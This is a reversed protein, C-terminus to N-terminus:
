KEKGGSKTSIFSEFKDNECVIYLEKTVNEATHTITARNTLHQMTGEALEDDTDAGVYTTNELVNAATATLEDSGVGGGGSLNTSGIM